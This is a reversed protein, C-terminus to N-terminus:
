GEVGFVQKARRWFARRSDTSPVDVCDTLYANWGGLGGDQLGGRITSSCQTTLFWAASGFDYEDVDTLMQLVEKPSGAPLARLKSSLEPISKAYLLNFHPSQMNRASYEM